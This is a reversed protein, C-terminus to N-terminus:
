DVYTDSDIVIEKEKTDVPKNCSLCVHCDYKDDWKTTVDYDIKTNCHSCRPELYDVSNFFKFAM